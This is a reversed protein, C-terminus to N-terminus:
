SGNKLYGKLFDQISEDLMKDIKNKTKRKGALDEIQNIIKEELKKNKM